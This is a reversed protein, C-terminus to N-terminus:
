LSIKCARTLFINKNQVFIYFKKKKLWKWWFGNLALVDLVRKIHRQYIVLYFLIKLRRNQTVLLQKLPCFIFFSTKKRVSFFFKLKKEGFLTTHEWIKKYKYFVVLKKQSVWIVLCLGQLLTGYYETSFFDNIIGSSINSTVLKLFFTYKQKPLFVSRLDFWINDKAFIQPWVFTSTHTYYHPPFDFFDWFSKKCVKNKQKWFKTYLFHIQFM